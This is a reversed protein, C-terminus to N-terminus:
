QQFKKKAIEEFDGAEFMANIASMDKSKERWLTHIDKNADVVAQSADHNGPVIFIREESCNTAIAVPSIFRDYADCHSDTAAGNVLDGTFIIVDPRRHGICLAELDAVLAEIVIEQERWKRKSYHFDSIHLISLIPQDSM